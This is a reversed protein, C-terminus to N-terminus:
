SKQSDLRALASQAHAELGELRALHACPKALAHIGQQSMSIISSKKMFTDVGLPSFFRASGGTPLTHNPGALYDGIAEPTYAGLFIAGAAKIRPLYSFSDALLLELHEPALANCLEICEDISSCVFIAGRNKLSARAIDKRPLTELLTDLSSSIASAHAPDTTFAFACAMEDHEAQSLLDRAIITPDANPETIIAIESPGAIMDIGVKGYVLAKAAAVYINGPGSIVDVAKILKARALNQSPTSQPTDSPKVQNSPNDAHNQLGYAMLAIASAGGVRYIETVGCIHLAALLLPNAIGQPTPTCVMIEEVGAVIAPIANMLVSSPYAAKGGPIYLGARAIPTYLQGLISGHSDTDIWSRQKQKTHFAHIREYAIHLATKSEPELSKYARECEAQTITLEALSKPSFGDFRAVQALVAPLGQTAIEQMLPRIREQASHLDDGGRALIQEFEQAFSPQSTHLIPIM